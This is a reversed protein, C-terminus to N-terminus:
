QSRAHEMRAHWKLLEHARDSSLKHTFPVSMEISRDYTRSRAGTGTKLQKFTFIVHM